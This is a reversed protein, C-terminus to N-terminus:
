WRAPVSRRLSRVGAHRRGRGVTLETDYVLGPQRHDVGDAAGRLNASRKEAQWKSAAYPESPEPLRDAPEDAM